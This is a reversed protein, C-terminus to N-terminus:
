RRLIEQITLIDAYVIAVASKKDLKEYIRLAEFAMNLGDPYNGLYMYITSVILFADAIGEQYDLEKALNLAEEAYQEALEIKEFYLSVALRNLTNVREEAQQGPLILLLSDVNYYDIMLFKQAFSECIFSILLLCVFTRLLM